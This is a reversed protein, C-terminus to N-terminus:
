LFSKRSRETLGSLVQTMVEKVDCLCVWTAQILIMLIRKEDISKQTSDYSNLFEKKTQLSKLEIIRNM